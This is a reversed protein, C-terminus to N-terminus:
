TLVFDTILIDRVSDPPAVLEIRRLLQARLRTMSAPEALDSEEVARLYSNLADRFRPTFKAVESSQAATTEISISIKLYRSQAKPGLTVVLPDLAVFAAPPIAAKSRVKVGTGKASEDLVCRVAPPPSFYAAAAGAGALTLASALGLSLARVVSKAAAGGQEPAREAAKADPKESVRKM